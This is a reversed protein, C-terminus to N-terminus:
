ERCRETTITLGCHIIFIPTIMGMLLLFLATVCVSATYTKEIFLYIIAGVKHNYM